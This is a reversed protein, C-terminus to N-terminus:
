SQNSPNAYYTDLLHTAYRWDFLNWHAVHTRLFRMVSIYHVSDKCHAAAYRQFKAYADAFVPPLEYFDVYHAALKEPEILICFNSYRHYPHRFSQAFIFILNSIYPRDEVM